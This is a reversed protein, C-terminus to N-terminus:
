IGEGELPPTAFHHDRGEVLAMFGPAQEFM